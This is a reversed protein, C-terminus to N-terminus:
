GGLLAETSKAWYSLGSASINCEIVMGGSKEQAMWFTSFPVHSLPDVEKLGIHASFASL